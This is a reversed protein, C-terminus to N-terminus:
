QVIDYLVFNELATFKMSKVTERWFAFIIEVFFLHVAIWTALNHKCVTFKIKWLILIKVFGCFKNIACSINTSYPIIDCTLVHVHIYILFYHSNEIFHVNGYVNIVVTVSSYWLNLLYRIAPFKRPWYSKSKERNKSIWSFLIRSIIFLVTCFPQIIFNAFILDMFIIKPHIRSLKSGQFNRAICYSMSFKIGNATM